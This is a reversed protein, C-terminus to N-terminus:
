INKWFMTQTYCDTLASEYRRQLERDPTDLQLCLQNINGDYVNTFAVPYGPNLALLEDITHKESQILLQGTYGLKQYFGEADEVSGLAILKVGLIQAQKEIELMLARAIGHKRDKKEVAVIGVTINGNDEVFSPAIGIVRGDAEAYVILEPYSKLRGEWIARDFQDSTKFIGEAFDLVSYLESKSEAHKIRYNM